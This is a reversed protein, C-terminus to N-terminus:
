TDVIFFTGLGLKVLINADNQNLSQAKYLNDVAPTNMNNELQILGLKYFPEYYNKNLEIAKEYARIAHEKQQLGAFVDGIKIYLVYKDDTNKIAKKYYVLAREYDEQHQYTQGIFYNVAATKFKPDIDQIKLLHQRANNYDHKKMYIFFLRYHALINNKDEQLM